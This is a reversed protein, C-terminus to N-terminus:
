GVAAQAGVSRASSNDQGLPSISGFPDLLLTQVSMKLLM